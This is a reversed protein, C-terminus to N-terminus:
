YFDGLKNKWMVHWKNHKHGQPATKMKDEASSAVHLMHAVQAYSLGCEELAVAAVTMDRADFFRRRIQSPMLEPQKPM